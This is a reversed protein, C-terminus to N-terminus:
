PLKAVAESTGGDEVTFYLDQPLLFTLLGLIGAHACLRGWGTVPRFHSITIIVAGIKLETVQTHM